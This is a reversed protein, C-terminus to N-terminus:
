RAGSSGRIVLQPAMLSSEVPEGKILGVIGDVLGEAALKIDQRVTTLPPTVYKAHSLDDFGVVAIDDPVAYGNDELARMADIAIVDTM